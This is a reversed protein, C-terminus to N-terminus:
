RRDDKPVLGIQEYGWLFAAPTVHLSSGDLEYRPLLPLVAELAAKTEMRGLASGICYHPGRGFGVHTSVNDRRIDFQGPDPFQRPDRNAAGVAVVLKTGRAIPVGGIETDAVADRWLIQVPSRHRAAEEVCNSVLEPHDLLLQLQDPNEMLGVVANGILNQTTEVGGGVLIFLTFMADGTSLTGKAQASVIDSILDDKPELRRAEIRPILTEIMKRFYGFLRVQAEPTGADAGQAAAMYGDMWQKFEGMRDPEVSCVHAITTISLPKALRAILDFPQNDDIDAMYGKVLRDVTDTWEQIRRPRFAWNVISRMDTHRPPDTAIFMRSQGLEALSVPLGEVLSEMQAREEEGGASTMMGMMESQMAESSFLEPHSLVHQVDRYRTVVVPGAATRYIPARELLEDYFEFCRVHCDPDLPNYEIGSEVTTM